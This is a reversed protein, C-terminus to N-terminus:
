SGTHRGPVVCRGIAAALLPPVANGVGARANTVGAPLIYTRPFSQLALMDQPTMTHFAEGDRLTYPGAAAHVNTKLTASPRTMDMVRYANHPYFRRQRVEAATMNVAARVRALVTGALVPGAFPPALVAGARVPQTHTPIPPFEQPAEDGRHAFIITRKRHQPVGFDAADLIAARGLYGLEALLALVRASMTEGDAGRLLHLNASQEMIIWRPRMRTALRVFDFALTNVENDAARRRFNANSLGVCPPGGVVLDIRDRFKEELAVGVAATRVDGCVTQAGPHNRAYAELSPAHCDVGCVPEMGLSRLGESWGGIGCFLDLFKM